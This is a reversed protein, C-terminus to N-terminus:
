GVLMYDRASRYLAEGLPTFRAHHVVIDDTSRFRKAYDAIKAATTANAMLPRTALYHLRAVVFSAHVIGDMPRLDTRLPSAFRESSDNEVLPEGLSLGFLLAHAAEHVVGEALALPDPHGRANLLQAGWLYFSTIGGFDPAGGGNVAFVVERILARLEGALGPDAATILKLAEDLRQESAAMEDASPSRPDIPVEPDDDIHAVFRAMMGPGLDADSLAVARFPSPAPLDLGEANALASLVGAADASQIAMVLDAYVAFVGPRVPGADLAGTLRGLIHEAQPLQKALATAVDSLSAAVHSRVSRDLEVARVADPFFLDGARGGSGNDAAEGPHRV